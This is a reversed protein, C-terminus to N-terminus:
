LIFTFTLPWPELLFCSRLLQQSPLVHRVLFWLCITCFLLGSSLVPFVTYTAYATCSKPRSFHQCLPRSLWKLSPKKTKITV